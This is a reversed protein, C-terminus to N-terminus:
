ETRRLNRVVNHNEPVYGWLQIHLNQLKRVVTKIRLTSLTYAIFSYESFKVLIM